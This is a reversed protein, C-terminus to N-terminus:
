LVILGQRAGCVMCRAGKEKGKMNKQTIHLKIQQMIIYYWHIPHTVISFGLKLLPVGEETRHKMCNLM